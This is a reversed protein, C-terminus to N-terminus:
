SRLKENTPDYPSEEIVTVDHMTGLIDMTLKTGPEAYKPNVMALAISKQIRFGYNGGTARGVVNGDQYIPNNGLADADTVDHVELTVFKNDFGKERWQVLADRGIFDGKNPHVFRDRICM